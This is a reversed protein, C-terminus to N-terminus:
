QQRPKRPKSRRPKMEPARQLVERIRTDDEAPLAFWWSTGDANVIVDVAHYIRLEWLASRINKRTAGTAVELQHLDMFDDRRRLSELVLGTVTPEKIKM